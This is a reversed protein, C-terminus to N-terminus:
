WTAVPRVFISFSAKRVRCEISCNVAREKRIAEDVSLEGHDTTQTSQDVAAFVYRLDSPIEGCLGCGFGELANVHVLSENSQASCVYHLEHSAM